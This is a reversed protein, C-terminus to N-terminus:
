RLRSRWLHETVIANGAELTRRQAAPAFGASQFFRVRATDEPVIWVRLEEQFPRHLDALAALLRSGHGQRQHLPDVELALIDGEQYSAFGVAQGGEEAIVVGRDSQPPQALTLAWSQALADGSIADVWDTEPDAETLLAQMARAQLQGIFNADADRGPRVFRPPAESM